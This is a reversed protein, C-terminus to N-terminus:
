INYAVVIQFIVAAMTVSAPSGGNQYLKAGITDGANFTYTGPSATFYEKNYNAVSTDLALTTEWSNAGNVVCFAHADSSTTATVDYCFSVAIISGSYPMTIGRGAGGTSISGNAFSMYTATDGANMTLSANRGFLLTAISPSTDGKAALVDWSGGNLSPTM